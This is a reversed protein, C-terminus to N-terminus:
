KFRASVCLVCTQHLVPYIYLTGERFYQRHGISSAGQMPKNSDVYLPPLQIPPLAIPQRYNPDTNQYPRYPFNMPTMPTRYRGDWNWNQRPNQYNWGEGRYPFGSNTTPQPRNVYGERYHGSNWNNRMDYSSMNNDGFQRGRHTWSGPDYGRGHANDTYFVRPPFETSSKEYHSDGPRFHWDYDPRPNMQHYSNNKNNHISYWSLTTTSPTVSSTGWQPPQFSRYPRVTMPTSPTQDNPSSNNLRLVYVPRSGVTITESAISSEVQESDNVTTLIQPLYVETTAVKENSFSIPSHSHITSTEIQSTTTSELTTMSETSSSDNSAYSEDNASVIVERVTEEDQRKYRRSQLRGVFIEFTILYVPDKLTSM